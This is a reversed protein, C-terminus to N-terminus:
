NVQWRRKAFLYSSDIIFYFSVKKRHEEEIVALLSTLKHSQKGQGAASGDTVVSRRFM